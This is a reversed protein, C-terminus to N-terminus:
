VAGISSAASVRSNRVLKVGFQPGHKQMGAEFADLALPPPLEFPLGLEAMAHHFRIFTAFDRPYRAQDVGIFYGRRRARRLLRRWEDIDVVGVGETGHSFLMLGIEDFPPERDLFESLTAASREVAFLLWFPVARLRITRYPDMLVFSDVLLLRTPDLGLECYWDRYIAAAVWSFSEPDEFDIMVIRWEQARALAAIDDLLAPDFGWEAEPATDNAAPPNWGTVKSRYRALYEAVRANPEVYEEPDLGGLAGFQFVSRESIRTVPWSKACRDVYITSGRPLHRVLFNRYAPPLVRYKLRFYSMTKVMLRDQNPDHMHHIAVDPHRREILEAVARGREFCGAADDPDRLADRVPCLFTQPLWPIGLAAALHALAGNSSGVFIAPYSRAPLLSTIWGAVDNFDLERLKAPGIAETMGGISYVWERPRRPLYNALPMARDLLPSGSLSAVDRGHLFSAVAQVMAAASDFRAIGPPSRVSM